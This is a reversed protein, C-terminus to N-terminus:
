KLRQLPSTQALHLAVLAWLLSSALATVAAAVNPAFRRRLLATVARAAEIREFWLLVL